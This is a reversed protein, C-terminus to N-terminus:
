IRIPGDVNFDLFVTHELGNVFARNSEDAIDHIGFDVYGDGNGDLSWGVIQGAQSRELGLSDYVENL